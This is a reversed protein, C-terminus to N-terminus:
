KPRRPLRRYGGFPLISLLIPIGYNMLFGAIAKADDANPIVEHRSEEVIPKSVPILGFVTWQSFVRRSRYVCIGFVTWSAGENWEVRQVGYALFVFMAVALIQLLETGPFVIFVLKVCLIAGVVAGITKEANIHM